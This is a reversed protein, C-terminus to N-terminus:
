ALCLGLVEDVEDQPRVWHDNYNARDPNGVRTGFLHKGRPSGAM